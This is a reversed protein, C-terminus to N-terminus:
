VPQSAARDSRVDAGDLASRAVALSEAIIGALRDAQMGTDAANSDAASEFARAAAAMSLFGFTGAGGALKHAAEALRSAQSRMAPDRLEAQLTEGRSILTRMHVRREASPLADCVEAFIARDFLATAADEAAETSAPPHKGASAADVVAALLAAQNFPKAVHGNMGAQKCALVQDAFAHATVALVPVHCNPPPLARIHRTAELGNMGPMRVDMLIIDFTQTAAAKVAAAGSDVATVTHGAMGLFRGAISQNLPDDDVVLVRLRPSGVTQAPTAVTEATAAAVDGCPLEFWFISGGGPNDDYGIQGAMLQLLRATLALGLGAGEVGSVANANLREFVQFLKDRHRPWVGPGTDAVEVLVRTGGHLASYRIEVSGRPTFKVANGLLNLLVQRLRSADAVLRLPAAQAISLALGKADAAPRIVDLCTDILERLEIVSPSLELREAEIQSMDLVANITSLLYQGAAMMSELRESQQRTLGGELLLLEAYGLIGHLPTRLEHTILALFRSKAQSAQEAQVRAQRVQRQIRKQETIDRVIISVGVLTEAADRIPSMSLVVVLDDGRDRPLEQEISVAKGQEIVNHLAEDFVDSYDVAIVELLHRGIADSRSHGYLRAASANWAVIKGAVNTGIIGASSTEMIRVLMDRDAEIRERQRLREAEGIARSVAAPLRALRDKLVYDTIGAQFAGVADNDALVGTALLVPLDFRQAKAIRAAELGDFGPVQYDVIVVDPEFERLATVFEPRTDVRRAVCGMGAQRLVRMELEFDTEQDELVLIKIRGSRHQDTAAVIPSSTSM